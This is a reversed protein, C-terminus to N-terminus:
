IWIHNKEAVDKGLTEMVTLRSLLEADRLLGRNASVYKGAQIYDVELHTKTLLILKQKEVVLGVFFEKDADSFDTAFTCFPPICWNEARTRTYKREKDQLGLQNSTTGDSTIGDFSEGTKCEGFIVDVDNREQLVSHDPQDTLFAILVPRVKYSLHLVQTSQSEAM